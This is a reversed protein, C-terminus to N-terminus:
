NCDLVYRKDYFSSLGLKKQKFTSINHNKSAITKFNVHFNKKKMIAERFHKHRLKSKLLYRKVGKCRKVETKKEEPIDYHGDEETLIRDYEQNTITELSYVKARVGIASIIKM